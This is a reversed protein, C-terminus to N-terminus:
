VAVGVMPKDWVVYPKFGPWKEYESAPVEKGTANDLVLMKLGVKSNSELKNGTQAM